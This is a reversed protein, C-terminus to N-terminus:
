YGSVWDPLVLGNIKAYARWASQLEVLRQPHVNALDNTELPDDDINYLAWDAADPDRWPAPIRLAKWPDRVVAIKGFLEFVEVRPPPQWQPDELLRIFSRGASAVSHPTLPWNVGALETLTPALDKIFIPAHELRAKYRQPFYVFAPVRLGGETPFGKHWRSTPSGTRAWEADYFVYSGPRGMNEFSFDHRADITARIQPFQDIPWTEDYTHGEAGNDSLFVVITNDLQGRRELERILRGTHRDIEYIMAAYIEMARASRAQESTNLSDWAPWPLANAPAHRAVVGLERQRKHRENLLVEYGEDYRGAFREIAADPAQLPWHPATFSLMAFFPRQEGASKGDTTVEFLNELLYDVYYQSSYEFADPLADLRVGDEFYAAKATPSKAYAPRM